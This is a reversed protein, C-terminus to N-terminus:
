FYGRVGERIWGSRKQIQELILVAYMPCQSLVSVKLQELMHLFALTDLAENGTSRIDYSSNGNREIAVAM